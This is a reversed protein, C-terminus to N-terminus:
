VLNASIQQPFGFTSFSFSSKKEADIKEEFKKKKKLLV